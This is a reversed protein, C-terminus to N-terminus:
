IVEDEYVSQQASHNCGINLAKCNPVSLTINRGSLLM